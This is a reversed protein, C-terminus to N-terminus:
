GGARQQRDQRGQLPDETCIPRWSATLSGSFASNLLSAFLAQTRETANRHNSRNRLIGDVIRNCRRLKSQDDPLPVRMNWIDRDTVAPYSAGRARAMLEETFWKTRSLAYLYGQRDKSKARLVCFGTSCIQDDLQRPVRATARRYPRVTSVLVDGVRVVQRARGPAHAGLLTKPDAIEGAIGDVGAIDIYIFSRGPEDGPDRRDVSALFQGLPMAPWDMPNTTPDGFMKVFLAPLIRNARRNAETRLRCLRDAKDLIEVIRQQESLPPLPIRFLKLSNKSVEKFTTSGALGAIQDVHFSLCWALYRSEVGNKPLLNAFGQNTAIPVTAIGIKGISARSSFLVTGPPLLKASSSVLGEETISDATKRVDALGGGVPPLDTPTLWPIGGDWYAPNDRRPTGGGRIEAVKDLPVLPWTM